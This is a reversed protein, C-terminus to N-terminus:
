SLSALYVSAFIAMNLSLTSSVIAANAGYDFFILHGLLMFVAMAYITDTSVVRDPDEAGAFSYTFTIFVLASKM